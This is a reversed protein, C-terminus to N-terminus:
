LTTGERELEQYVKACEPEHAPLWDRWGAGHEAELGRTHQRTEAILEADSMHQYPKAKRFKRDAEVKALRRFLERSM